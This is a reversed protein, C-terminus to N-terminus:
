GGVFDCGQSELVDTLLAEDMAQHILYLDEAWAGEASGDMFWKVLFPKYEMSSVYKHTLMIVGMRYVKFMDNSAQHKRTVISGDSFGQTRMIEIYADVDMKSPWRGALYQCDTPPTYGSIKHSSLLRCAGAGYTVSQNVVEHPRLPNQSSGATKSPIEILKPESFYIMGPSGTDRTEVQQMRRPM